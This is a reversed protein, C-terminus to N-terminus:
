DRQRDTQRDKDIYKQIEAPNDKDIVFRKM